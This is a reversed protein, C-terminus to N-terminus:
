VLRTPNAFFENLVEDLKSEAKDVPIWKESNLPETGPYLKHGRTDLWGYEEALRFITRISIGKVNASFSNWTKNQSDPEFKTSSKSWHDWMERTNSHDSGHLAMGVKLWVERDDAPIHDLASSLRKDHFKSETVNLTFKKERPKSTTPVPLEYKPLTVENTKGIRLGSRVPLPDKAGSLFAPNATYYPQIGSYMNLDFLSKGDIRFQKLYAKLEDETVPRDLWFWFHIKLLALTPSETLRISQSGSFQWHCTCNIFPKPLLSVIYDVAAEPNTVPDIHDPCPVNDIDLFAWRRATVKLTPTDNDYQQKIARVLETPKVDPLIAGRVIYQHAYPELELLYKSLEFINAVPIDELQVWYPRKTEVKKYLSNKGPKFVKAVIIKDEPIDKDEVTVLTFSCTPNPANLTNEINNFFPRV